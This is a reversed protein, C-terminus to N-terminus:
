DVALCTTEALAFVASTGSQGISTEWDERVYVSGDVRSGNHTITFDETFFLLSHIVAKGDPSYVPQDLIVPDWLDPWVAEVVNGDVEIRCSPSTRVDGSWTFRGEILPTDESFPSGEWKVGREEIIFRALEASGAVLAQFGPVNVLAVDGTGASAYFTRYISVAGSYADDGPVKLYGMWHEGTWVLKWRDNGSSVM